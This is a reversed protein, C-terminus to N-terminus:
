QSTLDYAMVFDGHRLYLRKGEIVPHAWYPGQGERVTFSSVLDFKTADPRVLAVNGNKEEYLYLLGDCAIVSGKTEWKQEWLARGTKWDICCWNGNRNDKWNAGYIYNDVKVVGGHHCDLVPDSWAMSVSGGDDAIRLMVGPHNYGGTIYIFGDEYLPTNTNCKPAGPWIKISEEPLFAAYDFKWAIKGTSPDVGILYRATLTVIFRHEKWTILRPSVYAGTDNLSESEWTTNGTKKNLAVMTTKTGAPTFIVMDDVLLLSECIGWTGPAAGFKLAADYKWNTSGDSAKYSGITGLGSVVYIQGNEVTPTCRTEPFPGNWSPGFPVQWMLKGEMSIASLYDTSDKMGTVYVAKGDSVASSNGKGIGACNWLLPPGEPPWSKLLGTGPFVGNRDPGQWQAPAQAYLLTTTVVFVLLTLIRKM